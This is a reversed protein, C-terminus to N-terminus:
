TPEGHLKMKFRQKQAKSIKLKTEESRPKGMLSQSIKNCHDQTLAVGKKAESMKKCTEVSLPKGKLSESIKKRTAEPRPKGYNPNNKGKKLDSMKRRIEPNQWIATRSLSMRKKTKDSLPKGKRANSMKIRSEESQNGGEGGFTLNYGNNVSNNTYIACMEAVGLQERPINKYIIEWIWGSENPYKRLARHFKYDSFYKFAANFHDRKRKELTQTSFGIYPKNTILCTARYIIGFGKSM